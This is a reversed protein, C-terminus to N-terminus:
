PSLGAVATNNITLEDNGEVSETAYRSFNRVIPSDCIEKERERERERERQGESLRVREFFSIKREVYLERVISTQFISYDRWRHNPRWM